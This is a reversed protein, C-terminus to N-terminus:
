YDFEFYYHWGNEEDEDFHDLIECLAPVTSFGDFYDRTHTAVHIMEEVQDKTLQIFECAEDDINKIISTNYVIDWFKRAYWAETINPDNYWDNAEFAKKTRARFIYADMGM